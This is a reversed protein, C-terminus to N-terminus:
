CEMLAEGLIPLKGMPNGLMEWHFDSPLRLLLWPLSAPLGADSQSAICGKLSREEDASLVSLLASGGV